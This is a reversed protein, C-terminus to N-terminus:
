PWPGPLLGRPRDSGRPWGCWRGATTTPSWPSTTTTASTPSRTWASGTSARWADPTWTTTSWGGSSATCRRGRAACCRRSRRRTSANCWGHWSMEFDRSHRAGPARGPCRRPACGGAGAAIWGGSRLRWGCGAPAWTWTGGAVVAPTTAPEPRSGCPVACGAAGCGCASWSEPTPSTSQTSGWGGPVGLIRNFATTVVLVRSADSASPPRVPRVRGPGCPCPRRDLVATRHEAAGM